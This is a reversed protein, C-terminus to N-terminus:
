YCATHNAAFIEIWKGRLALCSDKVTKKQAAVRSVIQAPINVDRARQQM